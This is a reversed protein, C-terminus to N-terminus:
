QKIIKAQHLLYRITKERSDKTARLVPGKLYFVLDFGPELEKNKIMIQLQPRIKRRLNNREVAKKSIKKSIVLAFRIIKLENKLYKLNFFPSSINKGQKNIREFDRQLSIRQQKLSM